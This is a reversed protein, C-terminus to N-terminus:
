NNRYRGFMETAIRMVWAASLFTYTLAPVLLCFIAVFAVTRGFGVLTDLAIAAAWGLGMSMGVHLLAQAISAPGRDPFRLAVWFGLLASGIALAALFQQITVQVM